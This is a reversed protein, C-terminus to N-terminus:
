HSPASRRANLIEWAELYEDMWNEGMGFCGPRMSRMATRQHQRGGRGPMQMWIRHDQELVKATVDAPMIHVTPHVPQLNVFCYFLDDDTIREHKENMTWGLATGTSRTKVQILFPRGGDLFNVLIDAKRTGRPAPSALFGKSLLRSLVFYEGAAGILAKDVVPKTMRM